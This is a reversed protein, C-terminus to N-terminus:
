PTRPGSMREVMSTVFGAVTAPITGILINQLLYMDIPMQDGPPPAMSAATAVVIGDLVSAMLGALAAFYFLGTQRTVAAGLVSFLIINLILNAQSLEAIADPTPASRQQIAQTGLDVIIVLDGILVSWRLTALL